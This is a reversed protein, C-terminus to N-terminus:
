VAAGSKAVALGPLLNLSYTDRRQVTAITKGDASVTLSVHDNTDRTIPRIHEGRHSILGIQARFYSPGKKSFMVVLSESNALWRIDFVLEDRLTAFVQVQHTALDFKSRALPM